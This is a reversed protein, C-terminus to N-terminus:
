VLMEEQEFGLLKCGARNVRLVIGDRDIEHCAVPAEQFMGRFREESERLKEELAEYRFAERSVPPPAWQSRLPNFSHISASDNM